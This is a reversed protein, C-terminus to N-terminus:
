VHWPYGDCAMMDLVIHACDLYIGMIIIYKDILTRQIIIYDTYLTDEAHM